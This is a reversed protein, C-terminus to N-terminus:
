TGGNLKRYLTTRSVGLDRAAAVRNGGARVLAARVAEATVRRRSAPVDGDALALGARAGTPEAARQLVQEIEEELRLLSAQPSAGSGQLSVAFREALNELERVNGPWCHRQLLLVLAPALAALGAALEPDFRQVALHLLAAVDTGRERLPPIVLRLIELRFYLDERFRGARVEGRLTRHTAAMIRVDVPILRDGGVRMIQRQQLVRLLRAQIALPLEGIEDLFLTGGQALEFLGPKGGKRAGTFAGEEYGFLESELLSEPLAACNVAVFPGHRRRSANHMAQAFLEKGTGTEAEILVTSDTRAYRSAKEVAQRFRPSEGAIDAFTYRAVLGRQSTSQRLNAADRQVTPGDQFTSVLGRVQGAIVIPVRNVLIETDGLRQTQHLEPQGRRLAGMIASGTDLVEDVRRGIADRPSVGTIKAAAPNFVMIRGEEDTAVIGSYTFDLIAKFREAREAERRRAAAMEVATGLAERLSRRSYLLCGQMGAREAADCVLSSGVVARIDRSRFGSMIADLEEVGRYVMPEVQIKLLRHLQGLESLPEEFTVVPVVPGLHAAQNMAAMLDLATVPFEVIPLSLTRRLLCANAGGSIFADAKGETALKRALPVVADLVLHDIVAVSVEPPVDRALVEHLIPTLRPHGLIM